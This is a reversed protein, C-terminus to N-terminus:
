AEELYQASKRLLAPNDRMLGIAFNCNGCLLGRVKGTEHDHDVSLSFRGSPPNGCIKCVGGQSVLIEIYEEPTLGYRWLLSYAKAKSLESQKHDIYWTKRASKVKDSNRLKWDKTMLNGCKKCYSGHGDKNRKNTKFESLEKVVHCRSCKKSM